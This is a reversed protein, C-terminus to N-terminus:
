RKRTNQTGLKQKVYLSALSVKANGPTGDIHPKQMGMVVVEPSGAVDFGLAYIDTAFDTWATLASAELLGNHQSAEPIGSWAIRGLDFAESSVPDLTSNDPVKGMAVTVNPPLIGQTDDHTGYENVPLIYLPSRVGFYNYVLAHIELMEYQPHVLPQLGGDWITAKAAAAVVSSEIGVLDDAHFYILNQWCVQGAQLGKLRVHVATQLPM